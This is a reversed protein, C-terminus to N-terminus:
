YVRNRDEGRLFAEINKVVEELCRTRTEVPAWGMHPTILLKRSDKIRGLPNDETLPEVKLVDLGAAAILNETLATYLDEQNVIPGRAVNILVAEKKMRRFADLNMLNETYCNLPAHISLIDSEKLLTDFDVQGWGKEQFDYKSGSASYCIIRCGFVSAIEAVRQGIAGMGIIGWTKGKLELFREPFCSFSNGSGYEGSKVFDDYFRLKEWLYFLLAFTHQAVADTSYGAVNRAQIGRLKLYEGDLNNTGTATLCVLKLHEAGSLTQECMPLKNAVIIDADKIREPMEEPGTKPYITVEGLNYFPAFVMDEGVSKGELIVIKM